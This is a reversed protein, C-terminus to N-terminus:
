SSILAELSSDSQSLGFEGSLHIVHKFAKIRAEM